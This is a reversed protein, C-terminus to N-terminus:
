INNSFLLEQFQKQMEHDLKKSEKIFNLNRTTKAIELLSQDINYDKSEILWTLIEFLHWVLQSGEYVTLPLNSNSKSL